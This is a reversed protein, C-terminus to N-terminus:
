IKVEYINLLRENNKAIFIVKITIGKDANNYEYTFFDGCRQWCSSSKNKEENADCLNKVIEELLANKQNFSLTYISHISYDQFDSKAKYHVLNIDRPFNIQLLESYENIDIKRSCSTNLIFLLSILIYFRSNRM